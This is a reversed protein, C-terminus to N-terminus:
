VPELTEGISVEAKLHTDIETLLVALDKYDQVTLQMCARYHMTLPPRQYRKVMDKVSGENGLVFDRAKLFTFLKVLLDHDTM